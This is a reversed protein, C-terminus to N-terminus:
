GGGVVIELRVTTGRAGTDITMADCLHSSLWLGRGSLALPPPLAHPGLREAPIGPGRDTVACILTATECWATLVGWGGAHRIANTMIENVALVFNDLRQGDLGLRACLRALAHRVAGVGDQDFRRLLLAGTSDDAM